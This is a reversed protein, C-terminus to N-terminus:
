RELDWDEEQEQGISYTSTREMLKELQTKPEREEKGQQLAKTFNFEKGIETAYLSRVSERLWSLEKGLEDVLEAIEMKSLVDKSHYGSGQVHKFGKAGLYICIEDYAKRWNKLPYVEKLRKTDLDFNLSYRTKKEEGM